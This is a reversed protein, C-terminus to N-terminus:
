LSSIQEPVKVKNLLASVSDVIGENGTEFIPWGKMEAIRALETCPNIAVPNKVISLLPLDHHSDGFAFSADLNVDHTALYQNIIAEKSSEVGCNKLVRGTYAGDQVELLTGFVDDLGLRSKLSTLLEIPSGSVALLTYKEQKFLNLLEISFPFFMYFRQELFANSMDLIEAQRHGILGAALEEYCQQLFEAYNGPQHRWSYLLMDITDGNERRLVGHQTLYAAYALGLYGDVLTNDIDFIAIPHM